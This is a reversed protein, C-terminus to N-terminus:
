TLAAMPTLLQSRNATMKSEMLIQMFFVTAGAMYGNIAKGRTSSSPGLSFSALEFTAFNNDYVTKYDFGCPYPITFRKRFIKFTKECFKVSIVKAEAGLFANVQGTVDFLELPKSIRSTIESVRIKGDGGQKPQFEGIDILDIGVKGQIGGKVYGSVIKADIGAGVAISADLTLEDVDAGTGDANERDSVYFGDLVQDASGAAFNSDKWQSLGYTDYGFGLHASASFKGELLGKLPGWIPFDKRINFDFELKPIQYSLVPVDPKGILLQIATEPKTLLPLDFGDIDQLANLFEKVKGSTKSNIQQNATQQVATKPVSFATQLRDSQEAVDINGLTYSGLEIKDPSNAIQTALNVVKDVKAVADLFRTDIDRGSIKAALELVSVKGDGNKDFPGALGLKSLLKTDANLFNIVPRFPKIVDSIKGIIPKAFNNVFTGLDLQMNNFAVTPKQPGTLQGNAYNLLPWNVALDFNYSPFAANGNISTKGTLGLNANSTLNANFLDKFQYNNGQLEPLTLRAGDNPGGLNDLDNLKVELNADVKTPNNTDNALDVQFFGLNGKAKFEDNLALDINANLKTKDTDIYCGFDKSVGVGLSM